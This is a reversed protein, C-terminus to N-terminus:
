AKRACVGKFFFLSSLIHWPATGLGQVGCVRCGLCVCAGLHVVFAHLMGGQSAMSYKPRLQFLNALVRRTGKIPALPGRITTGLGSYLPTPLDPYLYTILLWLSWTSSHEHKRLNAKSLHAVYSSCDINGM